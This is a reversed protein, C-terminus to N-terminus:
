RDDTKQRPESLPFTLALGLAVGGMTATFLVPYSTAELLWGGLFPVVLLIGSLTNALAIYTSREGPPALELVFNIFGPLIGSNM